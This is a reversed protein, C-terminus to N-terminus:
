IKIEKLMKTLLDDYRLQGRYFAEQNEETPNLLMNLVTELTDLYKITLNINNRLLSKKLLPLIINLLEVDDYDNYSNLEDLFNFLFEINNLKILKRSLKLIYSPMYIHSTEILSKFQTLFNNEGIFRLLIDLVDYKQGILHIILYRIFPYENYSDAGWRERDRYYFRFIFKNEVAIDFVRKALAVENIEILNTLLFMFNDIGEDNTEIDDGYETKSYIFTQNNPINKINNYAKMYSSYDYYFKKNNSELLESMRYKPLLASLPENFQDDFELYFKLRESNNIISNQYAESLLNLFVINEMNNYILKQVLPKNRNTTTTLLNIVDKGKLNKFDIDGIKLREQEEIKQLNQLIVDQIDNVLVVDNLKHLYKLINKVNEINNGNMTLLKALDNIEKQSMNNIHYITYNPIDVKNVFLNHAIMWEIISVTHGRAKKDKLLVSARKYADNKNQFNKNNALLFEKIDEYPIDYISTM